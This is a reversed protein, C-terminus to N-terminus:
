NTHQMDMNEQQQLTQKPLVEILQEKFAIYLALFALFLFGYGAIISGLSWFATLGLFACFTAIAAVIFLVMFSWAKLMFSYIFYGFSIFCIYLQLFSLPGSVGDKWSLLVAGLVIWVQAFLGYITGGWMSFTASDALSNTRMMLFAILLLIIGTSMAVAGSVFMNGANLPGFWGAFLPGVVFCALGLSLVGFPAPNAMKM